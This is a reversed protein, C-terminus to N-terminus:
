GLDCGISRQIAKFSLLSRSDFAGIDVRIHRRKLMWYFGWQRRTVKRCDQELRATPPWVGWLPRARERRRSGILYDGDEAVSFRSTDSLIPIISRQAPRKRHRMRRDKMSQLPSVLWRIRLM